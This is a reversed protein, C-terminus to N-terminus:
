YSFSDGKYSSILYSLTLIPYSIILNSLTEKKKASEKDELDQNLKELNTACEKALQVQDDDNDEDDDIGEFVNEIVDFMNVNSNSPPENNTSVSFEGQHIHEGHYIWRDYNVDLGLICCIFIFM